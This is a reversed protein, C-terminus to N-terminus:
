RSPFTIMVWESDTQFSKSFEVRQRIKRYKAAEDPTLRRNRSIRKM